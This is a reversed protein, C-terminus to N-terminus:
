NQKAINKQAEESEAKLIKSAMKHNANITLNYQDPMGGMFAIGGGGTQQMDKMRRMFEPMTLSVPLEDPSLAEVAVTMSSNNIANEAAISALDSANMHNEAHRREAIRTTQNFTDIIHETDNKFFSGDEKLFVHESFDSNKKIQTPICSGTGTIVSYISM